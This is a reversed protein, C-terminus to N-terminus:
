KIGLFRKCVIEHGANIADQAHKATLIILCNVARAVQKASLGQQSLQYANICTNEGYTNRACTTSPTYKM